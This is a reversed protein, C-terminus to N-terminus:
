PIMDLLLRFLVNRLSKSRFFSTALHQEFHAADFFALFFAPIGAADIPNLVDKLIQMKAQAHQAFRRPERENRNQRHRQPDSRRRRNEAQDVGRQQMRQGIRVRLFQYADLIIQWARTGRVRTDRNRLPLIQLTRSNKLVNHRHNEPRRVQRTCRLRRPNLVFPHRRSIKRHQSHLRLEPVREIRLVLRRPERQVYHDSVPQPLASEPAIRM